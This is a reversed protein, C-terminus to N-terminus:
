DIAEKHDLRVNEYDSKASEARLIDYAIAYKMCTDIRLSRM